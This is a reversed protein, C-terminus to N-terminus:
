DQGSIQLFGGVIPSRMWITGVEESAQDTVMMCPPVPVIIHTGHPQSRSCFWGTMQSPNIDPRRDHKALNAPSDMGTSNPSHFCIGHGFGSLILLSFPLFFQLGAAFGIGHLNFTHLFQLLMDHNQQWAKPEGYIIVGVNGWESPDRCCSHVLIYTIYIFCYILSINYRM